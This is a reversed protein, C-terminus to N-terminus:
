HLDECSKRTVNLKLVDRSRNYIYLFLSFAVFIGPEQPFKTKNNVFAAKRLLTFLILPRNSISENFLSFRFNCRATSARCPTIVRTWEAVSVGIFVNTRVMVSKDLWSASCTSGLKNPQISCELVGSSSLSGCWSSRNLCVRHSADIWDIRPTGMNAFDLSTSFFPSLRSPHRWFYVYRQFRM